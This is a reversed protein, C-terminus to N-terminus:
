WCVKLQIEALKPIEREGKEAQEFQEPYDFYRIPKGDEGGTFLTSSLVLVVFIAAVVIIPIIATYM